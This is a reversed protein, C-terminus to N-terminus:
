FNRPSHIQKRNNSLIDYRLVLEHSGNNYRFTRLGYSWDCSYGIHLQDTVNFGLLAGVADGSRFMGGLLVRKQFVFSATLDLQVPAGVTMKVLSTPKFELYDNLPILAGTIFFYHRKENGSFLSANTSTEDSFRYQLLNPVSLGAYFRERSFYAGVGVNPTVHNAIDNSFVPDNPDDLLLDNLDAQFINVGASLGLALKSSESLKMIFAYDIVMSTLNTPGIKDNLVSLGLGVRENELLTHMTISQTTPAGKFNVWQSRHIGTITFADRSGAYAPNVILTNYMYHTYMPAQQASISMCGISAALAFFIKLTKM